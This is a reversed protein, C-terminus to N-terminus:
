SLMWTRRRAKALLWASFLLLLVPAAVAIAVALSLLVLLAIALVFQVQNRALIRSLLVTIFKYILVGVGVGLVAGLVRPGASMAASVILAVAILAAIRLRTRVSHLSAHGIIREFNVVAYDVPSYWLLVTLSLLGAVAPAAEFRDYLGAAFVLAMASLTVPLAGSGGARSQWIRVLPNLRASLAHGQVGRGAWVVLQVPILSIWWSLLFAAAASAQPLCLIAAMVGSTVLHTGLRYSSSSRRNLAAPSLASDARFYGIRTLLAVDLLLAAFSATGLLVLTRVQLEFSWIAERVFLAPVSVILGLTVMDQFRGTFEKLGAGLILLDHQLLPNGLTISRLFRPTTM